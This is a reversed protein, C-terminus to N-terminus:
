KYGLWQAVLYIVLIHVPYFLYFLYKLKLGRKGNYLWTLPVGLFTFVENIAYITLIFCGALSEKLLKQGSVHKRICFMVAITMVGVGSYDTKFLFSLYVFVCVVGMIIISKIIRRCGYLIDAEEIANICWICLLGLFLTFYVNQYDWYFYTNHLFLDFPVESIIGFVLLRISYKLRSRTYFFGEVLMFCFLPFAIRGICRSVRYLHFIWGYTEMWAQKEAVNVLNYYGNHIVMKWLLGAGIHDILMTVIAVLKITSASIGNFKIKETNNGPFQIINSTEM